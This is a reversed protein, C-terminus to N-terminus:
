NPTSGMQCTAPSAGGAPGSHICHNNIMAPVPTGITFSAANTVHYLRCALSDGTATISYLKDKNPFANCKTMCDAADAYQPTIGALPAATTGCTKVEIACFAACANGSGCFAPATATLADGGPGAHPCHLAANGAAPAGGHYIRCGLTDGTTDTTKSTGVTFAACTGLCHNMSTYQANAGTCNTQIQTCYTPCDLAAAPADVVVAADIAVPPADAVTNGDDGCAAAALAFMIFLITRM